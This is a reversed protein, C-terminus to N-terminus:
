RPMFSKVVLRRVEVILKIILQYHLFTPKFINNSKENQVDDFTTGGARIAFYLSPVVCHFIEKSHLANSSLLFNWPSKDVDSHRRKIAQGLVTELRKRITTHIIQVSSYFGTTHFDHIISRFENLADPYILAVACAIVISRFHTKGFCAEEFTEKLM